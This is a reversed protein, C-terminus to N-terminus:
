GDRRIAELLEYVGSVSWGRVKDKVRRAVERPKGGVASEERLLAAVRAKDTVADKDPPGVVVTVEGLLDEPVDRWRDLTGVIFEEHVKTLERAICFPRVGMVAHAAELTERVRNKREFFVLTVDPADPGGHRELTKRRDAAKHPLFGLFTFPYPPLGCAMLAAMAASPGPVPAVRIGAERCARVLLFGPDSVLPTGADSVLAADRGEALHAVVQAVRGEENHEHLSLFGRGAIGLRQFLLGTRRTDEALVLDAAALVERARPSLDDTNGLPTAVIYLTGTDAM